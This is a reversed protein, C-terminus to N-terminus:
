HKSLDIIEEPATTLNEIGTETVLYTNEIGVAGIHPLVFKPEFAVVMGPQLTDKSRGMLVPLENIQLGLGHGVFQAQLETGMFYPEAGAEKVATLCDNYIGACSTGPGAQQIIERHMRRSLEHLRYAEEPLEGISYTRTMDSCYVGYNGAMDIMVAMGPRLPTGNAGLPLAESGAGGLAFDYPSPAGANDGTLLSGMFIEMASGFCRFLGVSGGRRMRYEIEIQLDRDTMGPRYLDKIYSYTRVHREAGQRIQKIELPSKVMRAERLLTTANQVKANPFLRAQRQIDSYTQEDLELAVSTLQTTDMLEAVQEIKRIAHVEEQGQVLSQPRRIFFQAEGQQPIVALGSFIHGFTYLLNVNSAIVLADIGERQLLAQVRRIRLQYDLRDDSHLMQIPPNM